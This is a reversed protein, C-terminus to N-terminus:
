LLSVGVLILALSLPYGWCIINVIASSFSISYENWVQHENKIAMLAKMHLDYMGVIANFTNFVALKGIFVGVCILIIALTIM